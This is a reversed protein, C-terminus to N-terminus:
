HRLEIGIQTTNLAKRMESRHLEIRLVQPAPESVILTEYQAPSSM